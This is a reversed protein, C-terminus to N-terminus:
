SPAFFMCMIAVVVVCIAIEEAKTLLTLFFLLSFASQVLMLKQPKYPVRTAILCVALSVIVWNLDCFKLLLSIRLKSSGMCSLVIFNVRSQIDLELMPSLSVFILYIFHFLSIHIKLALSIFPTM